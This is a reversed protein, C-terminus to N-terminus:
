IKQINVAANVNAQRGGAVSPLTVAAASSYNVLTLVDDVTLELTIQGNNQQTGAGSGYVSGPVLRGNKFIAFQSPETGSISFAITYIGAALVRIEAASPEHTLGYLLGNSDFLVPAGVAVVQPELNYIYAYAPHASDVLNCIYSRSSIEEADLVQNANADLGSTLESGGYLCYKEAPESNIAILSSLGNAGNAGATGNTGNAGVAGNCIYTTSTVENLDVVLNLNVDLGMTTKQGGYTCHIGAGETVTKSVTTLGNSGNAGNAGNVGHAGAAGKCVYSWSTIESADLISNRNSDLGVSVLSGGESCNTGVSENTIVMQVNLGNIGIQGDNGNLGNVGNNGISGNCVYQEDTAESLELIHNFNTDIGSQVTMGGNPCSAVPASSVMAVAISGSPQITTNTDNASSGCSAVCVTILLGMMSRLYM